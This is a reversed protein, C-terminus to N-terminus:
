SLRDERPCQSDASNDDLKQKIDKLEQRIIRFDPNTTNYEWIERERVGFKKDFYGIVMRLIIYGIIMIPIVFFRNNYIWVGLPDDEWLKYAMAIILLTKAYNVYHGSRDFYVKYRIIRKLM